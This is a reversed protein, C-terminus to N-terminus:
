PLSASSISYTYPSNGWFIPSVGTGGARAKITVLLQEGGRTLAENYLSPPGTQTATDYFAAYQNKHINGLSAASPCLSCYPNNSSPDNGLGPTVVGKTPDRVWLNVQGSGGPLLLQGGPSFLIDYGLTSQALSKYTVDGQSATQNILDGFSPSSVGDSLDVCTNLPMTVVSEGLLPRPTQYIGFYAPGSFGTYTSWTTAAGMQLDPYVTLNVTCTSASTQTFSNPVIQTWVNLTPLGVTVPSSAASIMGNLQNLQAPTLGGITCTRNAVGATTGISGAQYTVTQGNVTQTSAKPNLTLNIQLFPPVINPNTAKAGDQNTFLLWPPVEIFQYSTSKLFINQSPQNAASQVPVQPVSDSDILLRIGRPMGDRMRANHLAGQLQSAADRARDKDMVGPAVLMVLAALTAMLAMVVLLEILTFGARIGHAHRM